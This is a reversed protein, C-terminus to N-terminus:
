LTIHIVFLFNNLFCVKNETGPQLQVYQDPYLETSVKVSTIKDKHYTIQFNRHTILFYDSVKTGDDSFRDKPYTQSFGVRGFVPLDDIWMEYEFENKIANIFKQISM